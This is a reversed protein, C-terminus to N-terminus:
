DAYPPTVITLLCTRQWWNNPQHYCSCNGLASMWLKCLCASPCCRTDPVVRKLIIHNQNKHVGWIRMRCPLCTTTYPYYSTHNNRDQINKQCVAFYQNFMAPMQCFTSMCPQLHPLPYFMRPHSHPPPYASNTLDPNTLSTNSITNAVTILAQTLGCVKGWLKGVTVDADGCKVCLGHWRCKAGEWQASEVWIKGVDKTDSFQLGQM